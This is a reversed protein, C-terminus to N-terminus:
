EAPMRLCIRGPLSELRVPLHGAYDGDLQFPVRSRSQWLFGVGRAVQVDSRKLLRRMVIAGFYRLGATLSNGQLNLADLQGDDDITAPAIPLSAAYCPLNFTMVWAAEDLSLTQGPDFHTVRTQIMPFRYRMMARLIPKAYTWRSVHGRRRLHVDRVVEADFGATAMVLFLQPRGRPEGNPKLKTALGADIHRDRGGIVTAAVTTADASYGYHKALLNETGMPMAVLPVTPAIRSAAVALTGDGGATVVLWRKHALDDNSRSALDQLSDTRTVRIGHGALLEQLRDVEDRRDGSGAKPSTLIWVEDPCGDFSM